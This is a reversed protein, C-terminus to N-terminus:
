VGTRGPGVGPKYPISEPLDLPLTVEMYNTMFNNLKDMFAQFRNNDHSVLGTAHRSSQSNVLEVMAIHALRAWDKISENEVAMISDLSWLPVTFETPHSEPCDLTPIAALWDRYNLAAAVYSKLRNLDWEEISASNASQCHLSEDIFRYLRACLGHIDMNMTKDNVNAM